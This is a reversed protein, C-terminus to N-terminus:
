SLPSLAPNRARWERSLMAYQFTNEFIPHGEADNIFSVFDLFLGERRMGLRECLRQSRVNSDEVYAYIRRVGHRKFLGDPDPPVGRNHGVSRHRGTGAEGRGRHQESDGAGAVRESSASRRASRRRM